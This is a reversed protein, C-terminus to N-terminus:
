IIQLVRSKCYSLRIRCNKCLMRCFICFFSEIIEIFRKVRETVGSVKCYARKTIFYNLLFVKSILSTIIHVFSKNTKHKAYHNQQTAKAGNNADKGVFSVPSIIACGSGQSYRSQAFHVIKVFVSNLIKGPVTNLVLNFMYNDFVAYGM